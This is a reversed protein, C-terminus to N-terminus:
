PVASLTMSLHLRFLMNFLCDSGFNGSVNSIQQWIYSLWRFPTSAAATKAEGVPLTLAPMLVLAQQVFMEEQADVLTGWFDKWRRVTKKSVTVGTCIAEGAQIMGEGSDILAVVSEQVKNAITHKTRFFSPLLSYTDKCTSCLFRYVTLNILGLLTHLTREFHGHKQQFAVRKCKPCTMPRLEEPCGDAFTAIFSNVDSDWDM